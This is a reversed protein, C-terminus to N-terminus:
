HAQRAQVQPLTPDKIRRDESSVIGRKIRHKRDCVKCTAAFGDIRANNRAFFIPHRPKLEGCRACRKKESVPTEIELRNILAMRAIKNPIERGLITAIYNASYPMHYRNEVEEMIDDYNYGKKRLDLLFLRLESFGAMEVYRELDWFLTCGYTDLKEHLAEYLLPYLNILNRVHVPNEWDFTHRCVIWKVEVSDGEGRTEYDELNRSIRSTYSHDVRNRWEEYPIWYFSDSSWDYFQPKPHDVSQFHVVPKYSDRLYYQHRRLDILNHKLQYIRYSDTVLTDSENPVIRGQAIDLMRQWRDIIEWQEVMGPIDSDGPDIMNGSRDYRPRRIRQKRQTYSDRKYASRVEQEHFNPNELLEDLSKVDDEKTRYSKYRKENSDTTEDRQIANLGDEDKGYLIYSAMQELETPSPDTELTDLIENVAALRDKDRVISFDLSYKKKM